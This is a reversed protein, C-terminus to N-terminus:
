AWANVAIHDRERLQSLVRIRVRRKKGQAGHPQTSAARVADAIRALHPHVPIAGAYTSDFRKPFHIRRVDQLDAEKIGRRGRQLPAHAM